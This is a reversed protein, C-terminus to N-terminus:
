RDVAAVDKGLDALIENLGTDKPQFQQRRSFGLLQRTLSAARDSAKLVEQLDDYRQEDPSLGKLAFRTFAQIAQLLNNFEHAVGGALAGVAELKQSQRLEEEKKRLAEEAQRRETIDMVTGVLRLPAGDANRTVAAQHSVYRTRGDAALVRHDMSHEAGSPDNTAAEIAKQLLEYDDPQIREWLTQFPIATTGPAIGWIQYVQESAYVDNTALNWEWSGM